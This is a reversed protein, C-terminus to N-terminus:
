LELEKQILQVRIQNAVLELGLGAAHRMIERAVAPECAVTFAEASTLRTSEPGRGEVFLMGGRLCARAAPSLTEVDLLRDRATQDVTIAIKEDM